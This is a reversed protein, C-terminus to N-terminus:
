LSHIYDEKDQEHTAAKVESSTSHVNYDKTVIGLSALGGAFAYKSLEIVWPYHSFTGPSFLVFGFFATICGFLTSKWNKFFNTM